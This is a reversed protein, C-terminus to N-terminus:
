VSMIKRQVLVSLFVAKTFLPKGHAGHRAVAEGKQDHSVGALLGHAELQLVDFREVGHLLLEHPPLVGGKRRGVAGIQFGKEGMFFLSSVSVPIRGLGMGLAACGSSHVDSVAETDIFVRGRCSSETFFNRCVKLRSRM